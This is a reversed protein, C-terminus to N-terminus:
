CLDNTKQVTFWLEESGHRSWKKLIFMLFYMMSGLKWVQKENIKHVIARKRWRFGLEEGCKVRIQEEIIVRSWLNCWSTDYGKEPTWEEWLEKLRNEYKRNKKCWYTITVSSFFLDYAEHLNWVLVYCQCNWAVPPLLKMITPPAFFSGISGIKAISSGVISLVLTWTSSSILYSCIISSGISSGNVFASGDTCPDKWGFIGRKDWWPLGLLQRGVEEWEEWEEWPSGDRRYWWQHDLNICGGSSMRDLHLLAGQTGSGTTSQWWRCQHDMWRISAAMLKIQHDLEASVVHPEM